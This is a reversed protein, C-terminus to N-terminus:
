NRLLSRDALKKVLSARAAAARLDLDSKSRDTSILWWHDIEASQSLWSPGLAHTNDLLECIARHNSETYVCEARVSEFNWRATRCYPPKFPFDSSSV